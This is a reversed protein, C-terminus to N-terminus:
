FSYSYSLLYLDSEADGIDKFKTKAYTFKLSISKSIKYNESFKIGGTQLENLNNVVFGGNEVAYVREGNWYSFTTTFKGKYNSIKVSNSFYTDSTDLNEIYDVKAELYFSGLFSYYNGFNFGAKPTIQFIKPATEVNSYYSYYLDLGYNYEYMKYYLAGLAFVMGGDTELDTSDIYHIGTKYALNNGTYYNVMLTFDGQYLDPTDDKYIISTQEVDMETKFPFDFISFYLGEVYGKEKTTDKLYNIMGVYPLFVVVKKPKPAIPKTNTIPQPKNYVVKKTHPIYRDIRDLDDGILFNYQAFLSSCAILALLTKKM